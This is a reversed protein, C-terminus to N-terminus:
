IGKKAYYIQLMYYYIRFLKMKLCYYSLFDKNKINIIVNFLGVEQNIFDLAGLLDSFEHYAKGLKVCYTAVTRIYEGQLTIYEFRDYDCLYSRVYSAIKNNAKILAVISEEHTQASTSMNKRIFHFYYPEKIAVLSSANKLVELNFIIDEHGKTITEDFRLNNLLDRKYLINWITGFVQKKLIAIANKSIESKSNCTLNEGFYKM